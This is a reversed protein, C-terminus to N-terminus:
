SDESLRRHYAAKQQDGTAAYHQALLAHTAKHEPDFELVSHLWAAGETRSKWHWTVSAVQFRSEINEPDDVVQETLRSLQLLAKTGRDVLEFHEQAESERGLNRLAQAYSYRLKTNEPEKKLVASLADAAAQNENMMLHLRGLEALLRVHDPDVKLASRLMKMAEDTRGQQAVCHALSAIVRPSNAEGDSVIRLQQEADSFKLQNICAEALKIRAKVAGPDLELAKRCLRESEDWRQLVATITGEVLWPEPDNPFDSKWTTIVTAAQDLRFRGLAYKVFAGCVEPGDAGATRFLEAWRNGVKRFQGTQAHALLQQHDLEEVNYGLEHARILNQEVAAFDEERRAAIASLYFWEASRPWIRAISLWTRASDHERNDLAVRAKWLGVQAGVAATAVVVVSTVIVWTWRRRGSRRRPAPPQTSTPDEVSENM